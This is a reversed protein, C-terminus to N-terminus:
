STDAIRNSIVKFVDQVKDLYDSTNEDRMNGTIYTAAEIILCCRQGLGRLKGSPVDLTFSPKYM